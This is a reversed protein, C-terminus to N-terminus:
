RRTSSRSTGAHSIQRSLRRMAPRSPLTPHYPMATVFADTARGSSGPVRFNQFVHWAAEFDGRKHAAYGAVFRDIYDIRGGQWSQARVSDATLAKPPRNPLLNKRIDALAEMSAMSRDVSLAQIAIGLADFASSNGDGSRYSRAAEAAWSGIAKADAKEMRFAVPVSFWLTSGPYRNMAERVAPWATQPDGTAFLLATYMYASSDGPYHQAARLAVDLADGFRRDMFALAMLAQYHLHSGSEHRASIEYYHRADELHGRHAFASGIWQADNSIGVINAGRADSLGPYARFIKRAKELEGMRLYLGGLDLYLRSRKPAIEISQEAIARAEDLRGVREKSDLMYRALYENGRFRRGLEEEMARAENARGTAELGNRWSFCASMGFVAYLCSRRLVDIDGDLELAAKYAKTARLAFHTQPFDAEFQNIEPYGNSGGRDALHVHAANHEYYIANVVTESDATEWQRVQKATEYLRKARAAKNEASREKNMLNWIISMTRHQLQPHSGQLATEGLLDAMMLARDPHGQMESVHTVQHLLMVETLSSLLLLYQFPRPQWGASMCCWEAGRERLVRRAHEIPSGEIEYALRPNQAFGTVSKGRLLDEATFGAVPFQVDLVQKMEAGSRAHWPSMLMVNWVIAPRWGAPAGKAAEEAMEIIEGSKFDYARGVQALDLRALLKPLPRKIRDIAAALDPANGNLYELLAREEATRPTGLAELAAPRRNLRVLARATLVRYDASAPDVFEMGALAREYTRGEGRFGSGTHLAGILHQIWLGAVANDNDTAAKVPDEPFFDDAVAFRRPVPPEAIGIDRMLGDVIKRFAVEPPQADSIAVDAAATREEAGRQTGARVIKVSLHGKGDHSALGYVLTSAGVSRAFALAEDRTMHRPEGTALAALEVDAVRTREALALRQATMFAMVMRASVDIGLESKGTPIQYPLVIVDPKAEALLATFRKKEAEKWPSPAVAARAEAALSPNAADEVEPGYLNVKAWFRFREGVDYYLVAGLTAVLLLLVTLSLKDRRKM